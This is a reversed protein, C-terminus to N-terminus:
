KKNLLYEKIDYMLTINVEPLVASLEGEQYETLAYEIYKPNKNHKMRSNYINKWVGNSNSVTIGEKLYARWVPVENGEYKIYGTQIKQIEDNRIDYVNRIITQISYGIEINQDKLGM